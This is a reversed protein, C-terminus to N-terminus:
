DEKYAANKLKEQMDQLMNEFEERPIEAYMDIMKESSSTPGLSVKNKYWLPLFKLSIGKERYCSNDYGDIIALCIATKKSSQEGTKLLSLVKFARIHRTENKHDLAKIAAFYRGVYKEKEELEAKERRELLIKEYERKQQTLKDREETITLIMDNLEEDSLNEAVNQDLNETNKLKDEKLM